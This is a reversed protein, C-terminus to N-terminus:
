KRVQSIKFGSQSLGPWFPYANQRDDIMEFKSIPFGFINEIQKPLHKFSKIYEYNVGRQDLLSENGPVDIKSVFMIDSQYLGTQNVKGADQMAMIVPMDAKRAKTGLNEFYKSSYTQEDPMVENVEDIGIIVHRVNMVAKAQQNLDNSVSKVRDQYIKEIPMIHYVGWRSDSIADTKLGSQRSRFIVSDYQMLSPFLFDLSAEKKNSIVGNSVADKIYMGLTKSRIFDFSANKGPNNNYYDSFIAIDSFTELGAKEANVLITGFSARAMRAGTPSLGILDAGLQKALETDDYALEIFDRLTLTFPKEIVPDPHFGPGIVISSYGRPTIGYYALHEEMQHASEPFLETIPQRHCHWEPTKNPDIIYAPLKIGDQAYRNVMGDLLIHSMLISKGTGKGGAISIFKPKNVLKGGESGIINIPPLFEDGPTYDPTAFGLFMTDPRITMTKTVTLPEKFFLGLQEKYRYKFALRQTNAALANWLSDGLTEKDRQLSDALADGIPKVEIKQLYKDYIGRIAIIDGKQLRM